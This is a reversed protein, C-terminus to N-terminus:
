NVSVALFTTAEASTGGVLTTKSHELLLTTNLQITKIDPPTEDSHEGEFRSAEYALKLLIKGDAPEATLRVMTGVMQQQTQRAQIRGPANTVGVTISATKGIQMMSEFRPLASLRITEIIEIEGNEKLEDLSKVIEGASLNVDAAKAMRFETLQVVYAVDMQNATRTGVQKSEVEQSFCTTTALFFACLLTMSFRM